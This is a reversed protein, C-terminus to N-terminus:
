AEELLKDAQTAVKLFAAAIREIDGPRDHKLWPVALSRACCAEAHPLAARPADAGAGGVDAAQNNFFPHLHLPANVGAVVGM